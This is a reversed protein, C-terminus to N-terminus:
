LSWSPITRRLWTPPSGVQGNKISNSSVVYSAIATGGGVVLFVALTSMVSAYTLRSRIRRM